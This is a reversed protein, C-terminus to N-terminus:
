FIRLFGRSRIRSVPIFGDEARLNEEYKEDMEVHPHLSEFLRHLLSM